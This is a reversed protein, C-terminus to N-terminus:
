RVSQSQALQVAARIVSPDGIHNCLTLTLRAWLKLSQAESAGEHLQVLLAYIDDTGPLNPRTILEAM